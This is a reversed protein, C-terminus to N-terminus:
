QFLVRVRDSTPSDPSSRLQLRGGVAFRDQGQQRVKARRAAVYGKVAFSFRIASASLAHRGHPWLPLTLCLDVADRQTTESNIASPPNAIEVPRAAASGWYVLPDAWDTM